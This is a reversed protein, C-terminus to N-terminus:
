LIDLGEYLHVHGYKTAYIYGFWIDWPEGLLHYLNSTMSVQLSLFGLVQVLGHTGFELERDENM